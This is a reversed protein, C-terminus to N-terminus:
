RPKRRRGRPMKRHNLGDIQPFAEPHKGGSKWALLRVTDGNRWLNWTKIVLAAQHRARNPRNVNQMVRRLALIANGAELNDGKWLRESFEEADDYDAEHFLYDLTVYLSPFISVGNDRMRGITVMHDVLGPEALYVAELEAATPKGMYDTEGTAMNIFTNGASTGFQGSRRYEWLYRVAAAMQHQNSVHHNVKLLDGFTRRIGQDAAWRWELPAYLVPLLIPVESEIIAMLRHQGNGITGDPAIHIPEGQGAKWRGEKMDRAYSQWVAERLNRNDTNGVMLDLAREPTIEELVLKVDNSM